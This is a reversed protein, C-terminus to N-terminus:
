VLLLSNSPCAREFAGEDEYECVCEDSIVVLWGDNRKRLVLWIDGGSQWADGGISDAVAIAQDETMHTAERISVTGCSPLCFGFM